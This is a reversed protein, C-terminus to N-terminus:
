NKSGGYSEGIIRELESHLYGLGFHTDKFRPVGIILCTCFKALSEKCAGEDWYASGWERICLTEKASELILSRPINPQIHIAARGTVIHTITYGIINHSTHLCLSDSIKTANIKKTGRHTAIEVQM